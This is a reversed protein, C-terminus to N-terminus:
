LLLDIYIFVCMFLPLMVLFFLLISSKAKTGCTTCYKSSKEMEAGCHKCIIKEKKKKKGM